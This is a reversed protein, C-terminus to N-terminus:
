DNPNGGGGLIKQTREEKFGDYYRGAVTLDFNNWDWTLRSIGKWKLWGDGITVQGFFAGEFPDNNVRGSVEHTPAAGNLQFLFSELYTWDNSWTFTGWNTTQYQYQLSLDIGKAIQRGSNEFGSKVFNATNTAPDINVQEGPPLTGSSFHRCWRSPM